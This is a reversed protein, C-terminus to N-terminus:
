INLSVTTLKGDKLSPVNLSSADPILYEFSTESAPSCEQLNCATCCMASTVASPAAGVTDLLGTCSQACCRKQPYALSSLDNWKWTGDFDGANCDADSMPNSVKMSANLASSTNLIYGVDYSNLTNSTLELSLPFPLLLDALAAASRMDAIPKEVAAADSINSAINVRPLRFALHKAQIKGFVFGYLAELAIPIDVTGDSSTSGCIEYQLLVLRAHEFRIDYSFSVFIVWV